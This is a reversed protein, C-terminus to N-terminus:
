GDLHPLDGCIKAVLIGRGAREHGRENTVIYKKTPLNVNEDPM